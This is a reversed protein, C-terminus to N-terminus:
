CGRRAVAALYGVLPSGGDFCPRESFLLGAVFEARALLRRTIAFYQGETFHMGNPWTPVAVAGEAIGVGGGGLPGAFAIRLIAAPSSSGVWM